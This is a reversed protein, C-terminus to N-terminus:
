AEIALSFVPALFLQLAGNIKKLLRSGPCVPCSLGHDEPRDTPYDYRRWRHGQSCPFEPPTLLLLTMLVLGGLIV